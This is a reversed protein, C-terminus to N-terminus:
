ARGGRADDLEIEARRELLPRDLTVGDKQWLVVGIGWMLEISSESSGIELLQFVKYLQQYLSITRRRPQEDASWNTWPGAIWRQIAANTTPRDELRLKLDFKPSANEAENHKRPSNLVDEPRVAGKMLAADRQETSVTVLRHARVEPRRTPDPSLIIWDALEKPPAPPEKRALREVEL